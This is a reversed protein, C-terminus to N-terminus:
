LSGEFDVREELSGHAVLSTSPPPTAPRPSRLAQSNVTNRRRTRARAIPPAAADDTILRPSRRREFNELPVELPAGTSPMPINLDEAIAPLPAVTDNPTPSTPVQGVVPGTPTAPVVHVQVHDGNESDNMCPEEATDMEHDADNQHYMDENLFDMKNASGDDEHEIIPAASHAPSSEISERPLSSEDGTVQDQVAAALNELRQLREAVMQYCQDMQMIMNRQGAVTGELVQIHETQRAVLHETDRLQQRAQTTIAAHEEIMKELQELENQQNTARNDVGTLRSSCTVSEKMVILMESHIGGIQRDLRALMHNTTTNLFRYARNWEKELEAMLGIDIAQEKQMGEFFEEIDQVRDKPTQM